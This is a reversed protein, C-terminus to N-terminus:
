VDAQLRHDPQAWLAEHELHSIFRTELGCQAPTFGADVM